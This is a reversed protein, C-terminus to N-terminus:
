SVVNAIHARSLMLHVRTVDLAILLLFPGFIHIGYRVDDVLEVDTRPKNSGASSGDWSPSGNLRSGRRSPYQNHNKRSPSIDFSSIPPLTIREHANTM